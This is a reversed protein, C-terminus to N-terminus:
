TIQCDCQFLHCLIKQFWTDMISQSLLLFRILQIFRLFSKKERPIVVLQLVNCISKATKMQCLEDNLVDDEICCHYEKM